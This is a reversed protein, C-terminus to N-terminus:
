RVVVCTCPAIHAVKHAVSGLLLGQLDSLGRSGMVIADANKARATEVIIRTPDGVAIETAVATAGRERAAAAAHEVISVANEHLVEAETVHIHEIRELEEAGKPVRGSGPNQQVHLLLLTADAARAMDAAFAAAKRAPDSGDVPCVILKAEM